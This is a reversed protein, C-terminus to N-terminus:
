VTVGMAELQAVCAAYQSNFYDLLAAKLNDPPVFNATFGHHIPLDLGSLAEAKIHILGNRPDEAYAINNKLHSMRIVLENAQKVDNINM